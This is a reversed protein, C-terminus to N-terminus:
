LKLCVTGVFVRSDPGFNHLFVGWRRLSSEVTDEIAVVEDGSSGFYGNIAKSHRPCKGIAGDTKGSRLRFDNTELYILKQGARKAAEASVKGSPSSVRHETITSRHSSKITSPSSSRLGVAVSAGLLATVVAGVLAIKRM